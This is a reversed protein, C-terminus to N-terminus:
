LAPGGDPSIEVIRGDLIRYIHSDVWDAQEDNDNRTGCAIIRDAVLEGATCVRFAGTVIDGIAKMGDRGLPLTPSSLHHEFDGAMLEDVVALNNHNKFEGRFTQTV